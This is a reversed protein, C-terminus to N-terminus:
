IVNRLKKWFLKKLTHDLVMRSVEKIKEGRGPVHDYDMCYPEYIQGCDVCPTNSKLEQFWQIRQARKSNTYQRSGGLDGDYRKKRYVKWCERCWYSLGDTYESHKSFENENKFILCKTCQKM